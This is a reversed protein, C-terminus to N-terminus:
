KPQYKIEEDIGWEMLIANCYNIFTFFQSYTGYYKVGTRYSVSNMMFHIHCHNTDQHVAFIIQHMVGYYFAILKAISYLTEAPIESDLSIVFHRLHVGNFKHIAESLETMEAAANNIDTIGWSGVLGKTKSYQKIYEAVTEPAAEDRYKSAGKSNFGNCVILLGM